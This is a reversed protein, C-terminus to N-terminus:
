KFSIFIPKQGSNWAPITGGNKDGFTFYVGNSSLKGGSITNLKSKNYSFEVAKANANIASIPSIVIWPSSTAAWNWTWSNSGNTGSYVGYWYIDGDGLLEAGFPSAFWGFAGGTNGNMDLDFLTQPSSLNLQNNGELYININDGSGDVKIKSLNGNGTVGSVYPVDKWDSFDGDIAITPPPLPVDKLSVTKSVSTHVGTTGDGAYLTVVVDYTGGQTYTFTVDKNTSKSKNVDGFEWAYVNAGTSKNTFYVTGKNITDVKFDFDAVPNSSDEKKTCAAVGLIISLVLYIQKM